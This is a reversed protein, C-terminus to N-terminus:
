VNSSCLEGSVDQMPLRMPGASAGDPPLQTKEALKMRDISMVKARKIRALEFEAQAASRAYELTIRDKADGAIKSGSVRGRGASSRPGTNKVVNRRNAAIQKETGM